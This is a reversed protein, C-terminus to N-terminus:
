SSRKLKNMDASLSNVTVGEEGDKKFIDPLLTFFFFCAKKICYVTIAQHLLESTIMCVAKKSFTFRQAARNTISFLLSNTM